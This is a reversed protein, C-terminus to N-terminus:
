SLELIVVWQQFVMSLLINSGVLFLCGMDLPLPSAGPLHYSPFFDLKTDFGMGVLSVTPEFWVIHACPSAMFVLGSRGKLTQTDGAFSRILLPMGCLCPSQTCCVQTHCLGEQLLNSDFGGYLWWFKYLVPSISVKQVGPGLLFSCHGWLLSVWIQGQTDLLRQCLHWNTTAQQLTPPVSHPLTGPVKQLFNDNDENGGGYNPRLDSLLSPVCGDVSFQILSKCAHGRGDCFSGTDGETLKQWWSAEVLRKDKDM